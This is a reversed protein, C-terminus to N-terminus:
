RATLRFRGERVEDLAPCGILRGSFRGETVGGPSVDVRTLEIDAFLGCGEEGARASVFVNGDDADYPEIGPTADRMLKVLMTLSGLAVGDLYFASGTPTVEGVERYRVDSATFDAEICNPESWCSRPPPGADRPAISADRSVDRPLAIGDLESRAGCSPAALALMLALVTRMGLVTAGRGGASRTDVRQLPWSPSASESGRGGFTLHLQLLCGATALLLVM